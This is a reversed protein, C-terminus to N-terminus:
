SPPQGLTPFVTREWAAHQEFFRTPVPIGRRRNARIVQHEATMKYRDRPLM